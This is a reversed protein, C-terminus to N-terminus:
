LNLEGFVVSACCTAGTHTCLCDEGMIATGQEARIRQEAQRQQEAQLKKQFRRERKAKVQVSCIMLELVNMCVLLSISSLAHSIDTPAPHPTGLPHM